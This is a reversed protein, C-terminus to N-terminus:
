PRNSLLSAAIFGSLGDGEIAIEVWDPDAQSLVTVAEGRSLRALIGTDKSPGMRVNVSKGSVYRISADDDPMSDSQSLVAPEPLHVQDGALGGMGPLSELTFIPKEHAAVPRFAEQPPRRPTKAAIVPPLSNADTKVLVPTPEFSPVEPLLTIQTIEEGNAISQALHPRMQGRDEGAILLTVYVAAALVLSWRLM